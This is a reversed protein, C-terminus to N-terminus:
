CASIVRTLRVATFFYARSAYVRKSMHTLVIKEGKAPTSYVTDAKSFFGSFGERGLLRALVALLLLVLLLLLLRLEM